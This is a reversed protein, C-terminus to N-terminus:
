LYYQMNNETSLCFVSLVENKNKQVSCIQALNSIQEIITIFYSHLICEKQHQMNYILLKSIPVKTM